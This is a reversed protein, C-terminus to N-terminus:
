PFAPLGGGGGGMGMEQASGTAVHAAVHRLTILFAALWDGVVKRYESEDLPNFIEFCRKLDQPDPM